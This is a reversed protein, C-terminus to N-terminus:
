EMVNIDRQQAPRIERQLAIRSGSHVAARPLRVSFTELFVESIKVRAHM